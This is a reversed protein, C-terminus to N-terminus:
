SRSLVAKIDNGIQTLENITFQTSEVLSELGTIEFLPKADSGLLKPAIYVVLEDVLGASIFSGSLTPGAEVLVDNCAFESALSELVSNLNVGQSDSSVQVIEVNNAPNNQDAGNESNYIKVSGPENLIKATGPTRKQSDIIVRLPQTAFLQANASLENESLALEDVRVNLSPDDTLVTNIGTIVASSSARLIQVDARAQEGTIWKSEGNALATRGDLSMALKLRVFPLGSKQRKFYGANLNRAESEFDTLHFVEVNAAELDRIGQGSVRSDPDVVAVVVTSVGASILAQSCPGTRGSHACPELSVFATAGQAKDGASQLAMVEAHAQGAAVHWGEGVVSGDKLILCGVRPNPTTCLVNAALDLARQMYVPWEINAPDLQQNQLAKM